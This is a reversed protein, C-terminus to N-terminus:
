VLADLEIIELNDLAHEMITKWPYRTEDEELEPIKARTVPRPPMFVSCCDPQQEISTEYTKIARAAEIIEMKDMGILPRFVNMTVVRSVALLNELTQSAVQGLSEGTVIGLCDNKIAVIEAIRYMMRRYLVIRNKPRCNDRIATQVLEFPVVYLKGSTQYRNVKKALRLVKDRGERGLFPRNDFFIFHARCGRRIMKFSAVPSDIGGSLLSLVSGTCGVPLGRLGSTRQSFIVTQEHGIEVEVVVDSQKISVSLGRDRLKDMIRSGIERDCIMSNPTFSKDSRQTRVCFKTAGNKKLLPEIWSIGLEAIADFDRGVPIGVSFSAIGPIKKLREECKKSSSSTVEILIRGRPSRIRKVELERLLVQINEVLCNIFFKQNKGKLGIEDYRVIIIRSDSM